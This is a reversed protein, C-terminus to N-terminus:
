EAEGFGRARPNEVTEEILDIRKQLHEIREKVEARDQKPVWHLIAKLYDRWAKLCELYVSM